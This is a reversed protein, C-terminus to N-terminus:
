EVTTIKIKDSSVKCNSLVIDKIQAAQASTLEKPSVVINAAEDTIYAVCNTFGKAKILGEITTEEEIHKALNRIDQSAEDKQESTSTASNAVGELVDQAKSRSVEKEQMAQAFYTKSDAKTLTTASDSIGGESPQQTADAPSDESVTPTPVTEVVDISDPSTNSAPIARDAAGAWNVVGAIAILM